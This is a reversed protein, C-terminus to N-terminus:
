EVTFLDEFSRPSRLAEPGSFQTSNQMKEKAELPGTGHAIAPRLAESCVSSFITSAISLPDPGV